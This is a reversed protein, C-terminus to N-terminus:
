RPRDDAKIEEGVRQIWEAEDRLRRDIGVKRRGAARKIQRRDEKRRDRDDTM